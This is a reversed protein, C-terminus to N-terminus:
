KKEGPLRGGVARELEARAIWYDRVMEISEDYADYEEQRARLVEAVGILMFNYERLALEVIRERLPIVVRQLHEAKRRHTLLRERASRVESRIRIALDRNTSERRRLEAELAFIAAQQRDFIPLSLALSPGYAWGVEPELERHADFGLEVTGLWRFAKVLDLREVSADRERRAAALDLRRAIALSELGNLAIETGPMDPLKKPATWAVQTGWAGLIVTLNERAESVQEEAKVWAMKSSESQDRERSAALESLNGADKLRAALDAQAEAAAAIAHRVEARQQAAVVELWAVKARAAMEIVDDVVHFKVREFEMSAVEKRAPIMLLDLFNQAIEFDMGTVVGPRTPFHASGFITPNSLIGAQVLDAQAVGLDEYHSQLEPNNLLAIQVVSESTLERSFLEDITRRVEADEPGGRFWHVKKATREEAPKRVDEFGADEPVSCGALVIAAVTPLWTKM